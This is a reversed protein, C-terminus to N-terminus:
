AAGFVLAPMFVSPQHPALDAHLNVPFQAQGGVLWEDIPAPDNITKLTQYVIEVKLPPPAFLQAVTQPSRGEIQAEKNWNANSALVLRSAASLAVARCPSAVCNDNKIRVPIVRRM